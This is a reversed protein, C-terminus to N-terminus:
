EEVGYREFLIVLADFYFKIYPKRQDQCEVIKQYPLWLGWSIMKEKQNFDPGKVKVYRTETNTSIILNIFEMVKEKPTLNLYSIINENLKERIKLDVLHSIRFYCNVESYLSCNLIKM